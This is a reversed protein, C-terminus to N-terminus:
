KLNLRNKIIELYKVNNEILICDRGTNISAVGTSGSGATNDLVIDGENSYTKILEELLSVPKQNPHLDSKQKDTKFKWVSRPYRETSDYSTRGYKGYNETENCEKKHNATSVKRQHGDTKQPNYTKGGFVMIDEHSRMPMRKANLHGTSTTKEWVLCYKFKKPNSLIMKATFIGSGFLIVVGNKKLIRNYQGWLKVPDIMKDWKNRTMEYTLDCLVLDISNDEITSMMEITDGELLKIM